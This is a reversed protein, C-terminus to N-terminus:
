SGKALTAATQLVTLLVSWSNPPSLSSRNQMNLDLITLLTLSRCVVTVAILLGITTRLDMQPAEDEEEEIPGAEVSGNDRRANEADPM